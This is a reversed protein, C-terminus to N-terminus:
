GENPPHSAIKASTKRTQRLLGALEKFPGEWLGPTFCEVGVVKLRCDPGDAQDQIIMELQCADDVLVSLYGVNEGAPNDAEVTCSLEYVRDAWVWRLGTYDTNDMSEWPPRRAATVDEFTLPAGHGLDIAEFIMDHLIVLVDCAAQGIGSAVVAQELRRLRKMEEPTHWKPGLM